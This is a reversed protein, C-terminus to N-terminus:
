ASPDFPREFGDPPLDEGNITFLLSLEKKSVSWSQHIPEISFDFSYGSDTKIRMYTLHYRSPRTSKKSYVFAIPSEEAEYIARDGSKEM